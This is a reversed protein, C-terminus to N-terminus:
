NLNENISFRSLPQNRSHNNIILRTHRPSLGTDPIHNPDAAFSEDRTGGLRECVYAFAPEM